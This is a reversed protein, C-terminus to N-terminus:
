TAVSDKPLPPLEVELEDKLLSDIPVDFMRSLQLILTLSPKKNGKELYGLYGRSKHGLEDALKTLSIGYHKRIMRLKQGFREMEM